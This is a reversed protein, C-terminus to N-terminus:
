EGRMAALAVARMMNAVDGTMKDEGLGDAIDDLAERMREAREQAAALDRLANGLPDPVDM